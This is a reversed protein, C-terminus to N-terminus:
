SRARQIAGLRTKAPHFSPNIKVAENYAITASEFDGSLEAAVGLNFYIAFAQPDQTGELWTGYLKKEEGINQHARLIEAETLVGVADLQRIYKLGRPDLKKLIYTLAEAWKARAWELRRQDYLSPNNLTMRAFLWDSHANASKNRTSANIKARYFFLVRPIRMGYHGNKGCNIWFEWGEFGWIMYAQFGGCAEWAAKKFVASSTFLNKNTVFQNLDYEETRVVQYIDGFFAYDSYAISIQPNKSFLNLAAALFDPHIKDDADLPLIYTGKSEQIGRNRAIAVGSNAQALYKIKADKYEKILEEAVQETNDTSGDNVIVIEYSRCSQVLVSEVAVRLYKGQNYSPIIVSITPNDSM